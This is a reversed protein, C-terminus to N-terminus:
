GRRGKVCIWDEGEKTHIEVATFGAQAFLERFEEKTPNFLQYREINQLTEEPLHDKHYIDAILLFTGGPKLTRLVEKLNEAPDPWFYFSEVTVIKDFSEDAFPLNEVSAELIEMKGNRIDETNMERSLKVSVASYDVGTLHGLPIRGSIRMLTAGGGCGIDLVRDQEGFDLFDLAWLTVASHSENMRRLMQEGEEGQPKSPNGKRTIEEQQRSSLDKQEKEM